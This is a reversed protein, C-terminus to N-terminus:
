RPRILTALQLTQPGSPSAWELKLTVPLITYDGSHDAKDFQGDGNLDVTDEYLGGKDDGPFEVQVVPSDGCLGKPLRSSLDLEDKYDYKPDPDDTPSENYAAYISAFNVSQMNELLSRLEQSAAAKSENVQELRMASFTSGVLAGVAIALIFLAVCVDVLSFGARSRVRSSRLLLTSVRESRIPLALSPSSLRSQSGADKFCIGLFPFPGRVRWPLGPVWSVTGAVRSSIARGM